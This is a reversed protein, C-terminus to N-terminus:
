GTNISSIRGPQETTESKAAGIEHFCTNREIVEPLMM